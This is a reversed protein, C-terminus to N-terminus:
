PKVGKAWAYRHEIKLGDPKLDREIFQIFATDCADRMTPAMAQDFGASVGTQLSWELVARGNAFPLAEAGEGNCIEAFGCCQLLRQLSHANKPLNLHLDMLAMLAHPYEMAVRFAANRIQLWTDRKNELILFLGGQKLKRYVLRTLRKPEVYGIAWACSVIDLSNDPLQALREEMEGHLLQATPCRKSAERLMGASQDIGILEAEPYRAAWTALLAGTGCALDLIRAKQPLDEVCAILADSHAKAHASFHTDYGVSIRDYDAAIASQSVYTKKLLLTCVRLLTRIPKAGM